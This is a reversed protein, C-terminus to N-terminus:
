ESGQRFAGFNSTFKERRMALQAFEAHDRLSEDGPAM